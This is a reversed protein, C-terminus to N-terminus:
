GATSSDDRQAIAHDELSGFSFFCRCATNNQRIGGLALRLAAFDDSHTITVDIILAFSHGQRDFFAVLDNETGVSAVFDANTVFVVQQQSFAVNKCSQLSKKASHM